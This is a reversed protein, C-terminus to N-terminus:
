FRWGATVQLYGSRANSSAPIMQTLGYLYRGELVIGFDFDYSMGAIFMINYRSFQSRVSTASSGSIKEKAGVLYGFQGGLQFSLGNTIYYKGVIPMSIYDVRYRTKPDGKIDYGQQTLLLDAQMVLWDNIPSEAFLGAVVGTRVEAGSVGNITSFSVGAKPGWAWSQAQACIGISSVFVLVLLIKKM